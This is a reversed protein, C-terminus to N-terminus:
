LPLENSNHPNFLLSKDRLNEVHLTKWFSNKGLRRLWGLKIASWFNYVIQLGLGNNSKKPFYYM